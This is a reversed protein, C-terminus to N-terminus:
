IMSIIVAHGAGLNIRTALALLSVVLSLYRTRLTQHEQWITFSQDHIGLKISLSNVLGNNDVQNFSVRLVFLWLSLGNLTTLTIQRCSVGCISFLDIPFWTLGILLLASLNSLIHEIEALVM